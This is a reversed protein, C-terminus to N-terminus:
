TFIVETGYGIYFRLGGYKEKCQCLNGNWGHKFLEQVLHNLMPQWGKGVSHKLHHKSLPEGYPGRMIKFKNYFKDPLKPCFWRLFKRKKWSLKWRITDIKKKIKKIM